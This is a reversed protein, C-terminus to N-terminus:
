FHTYAKETLLNGQSDRILGPEDNIQGICTIRCGDALTSPLKQALARPITFCLEYDDGGTLALKLATEQDYQQMLSSSRPILEPAIEAGVHSAKLIHRLDGLLGDSIDLAATAGMQRLWQGAFLRPSPYWYRNLLYKLHDDGCTKPTDGQLVSSLAGAADGLTGTVCILDGPSAGSRLLAKSKPVLGQVQLSLTLPGRTTDGGILPAKVQQALQALGESFEKLWLESVRPLTLGLTFSHPEAGMAALDSLNVALARYGLAFPDCEKPFHVGEVLTDLSQALQMDAPIDFLACDDGIGILGDTYQGQIQSIEPRAFYRKILEFEGIKGVAEGVAM